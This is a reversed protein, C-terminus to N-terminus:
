MKPTEVHSSADGGYGYLDSVDLVEIFSVNRTFSFDVTQDALCIFPRPHAAHAQRRRTKLSKQDLFPAFPHYTKKSEKQSSLKAHERDSTSNCIQRGAQVLLFIGRVSQAGFSATARLGQSKGIIYFLNSVYYLSKDRRQWRKEFRLPKLFFSTSKKQSETV